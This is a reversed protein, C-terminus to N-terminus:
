LCQFPVCAWLYAVVDDHVLRGQSVYRFHHSFVVWYSWIFFRNTSKINISNTVKKDSNKITNKM